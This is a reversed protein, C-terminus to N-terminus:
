SAAEMLTRVQALSRAGDGSSECKFFELLVREHEYLWRLVPKDAGKASEALLRYRVVYPPLEMAFARVFELWSVACYAQARQIGEQRKGDPEDTSLEWRDLLAKLMARTESELRALVMLKEHERAFPGHEALKLFVTEGWIEDHYAALVSAKTDKSYEITHPVHDGCNHDISM